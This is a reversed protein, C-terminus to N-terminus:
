AAAEDTIHSALHTNEFWLAILLADARGSDKKRSLSRGASPFRALALVRAADKATGLLHFHRKWTAPAVLDLPIGLVRITAKLQGYGEALSHRAKGGETPTGSKDRMPRAHIREMAASVHAGPHAARQERIFIAVARADVESGQGVDMTPMDLVPGPEGDILTAIAGSLGPDIGFTLRTTM